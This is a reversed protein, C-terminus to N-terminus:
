LIRKEFPPFFHELRRQPHTPFKQDHIEHRRGTALLEPFFAAVEKAFFEAPVDLIIKHFSHWVGVCLRQAGERDTLGGFLIMRRNFQGRRKTVQLYATTTVGFGRAYASADAMAGFLHQMSGSNVPFPILILNLLILQKATPAINAAVAIYASSVIMTLLIRPGSPGNYM